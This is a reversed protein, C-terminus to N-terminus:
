FMRDLDSKERAPRWFSRTGPARRLQLPDHGLLRLLLGLPTVVLFFILTLLTWGLARTLHYGATMGARYFGRFWTPRGVCLLAVALLVAIWAALGANTLVGRWRLLCGLLAPAPLATLTFRRWARPDEQLLLKM